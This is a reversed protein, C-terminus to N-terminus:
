SISKVESKIEEIHGIPNKMSQKRFLPTKNILSVMKNLFKLEPYDRECESSVLTNLIFTL